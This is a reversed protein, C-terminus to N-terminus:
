LVNVGPILKFIVTLVGLVLGTVALGRGTLTSSVKGLGISSFVIALIGLPIGIVIGLFPILSLVAGSIGIVGGTTAMGNTPGGPHGIVVPYGPQPSMPILAHGPMRMLQEVSERPLPVGQPQWQRFQEVAESWGQETRAYARVPQGWHQGVAWIGYGQDDQGLV